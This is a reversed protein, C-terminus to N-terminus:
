IENLVRENLPFKIRLDNLIDENTCDLDRTRHWGATIYYIYNEKNHIIEISEVNNKTFYIRVLNDRLMTIGFELHSDSPIIECIEKVLQVLQNLSEGKNVIFKKDVIYGSDKFQKITQM